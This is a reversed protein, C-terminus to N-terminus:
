VIGGKGYKKYIEKILEQLQKKSIAKMKFLDTIMAIEEKRLQALEKKDKEASPTDFDKKSTKQLKKLEKTPKVGLKKGIEKSKKREKSYDIKISPKGVSDSPFPIIEGLDELPIDEQFLVFDIYYDQNNKGNKDEFKQILGEWFFQSGGGNEIATRINDNTQKFFGQLDNLWEKSETDVSNARLSGINKQVLDTIKKRTIKSPNITKLEPYVFESTFKRRQQYNITVILNDAGTTRLPLQGYQSGRVQFYVPVPLKEVSSDLDYWDVSTLIEEPIDFVNAFSYQISPLSKMVEGVMKVVKNWRKLGRVRKLKSQKNNPKTPKKRM